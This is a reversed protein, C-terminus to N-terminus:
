TTDARGASLLPGYFVRTEYQFTVHGEHAHRAFLNVVATRMSAHGPDGPPPTYSSSFVRGLLGELDFVQANEFVALEPTMDGWFAPMREDEVGIQSVVPYDTGHAQLLAEYDILFPTADLRRENWILVVWGPPRLVRTLERRAALPDFWHFSQGATAFDACRDPLGTDEATGAQITFRPEEALLRAGAERMADNPEVGIVRNGNELMLRALHGPGCGLDVITHAAELGCRTRLLELIEPPYGPRYRVYAEVRDSFRGTPDLSM